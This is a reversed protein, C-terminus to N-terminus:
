ATAQAGRKEQEEVSREMASVLYEPSQAGSVALVGNFIFM